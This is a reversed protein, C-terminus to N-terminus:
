KDVMHGSRHSLERLPPRGFDSAEEREGAHRAEGKRERSPRDAIGTEVVRRVLADVIKEASRARDGGVEHHLEDAKGRHGQQRRRREPAPAEDGVPPKLPRAQLDAEIEGSHDRRRPQSGEKGRGSAPRQGGTEAPDDAVGNQRQRM